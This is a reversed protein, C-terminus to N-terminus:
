ANPGECRFNRLKSVSAHVLAAVCVIGAFYNELDANQGLDETTLLKSVKRRGVAGGGSCVVFELCHM